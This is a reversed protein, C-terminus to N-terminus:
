SEDCEWPQRTTLHGPGQLGLELGRRHRRGLSPHLPPQLHLPRHRQLRLPQWSPDVSRRRAVVVPTHALVQKSRAAVVAPKNGALTHPAVVPRNRDAENSRGEGHSSRGEARNNGPHRRDLGSTILIADIDAAESRYDGTGLGARGAPNDNLNGPLLLSPQAVHLRRRGLDDVSCCCVTSSNM